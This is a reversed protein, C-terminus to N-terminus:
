GHYRGFGLQREIELKEAELAFIVEREALTLSRKMVTTGDEIVCGAFLRQVIEKKLFAHRERLSMTRTPHSTGVVAQQNQGMM